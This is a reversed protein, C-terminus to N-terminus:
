RKGEDEFVLNVRGIRLMDGHQLATSGQVRRENVYTGNTSNLDELFFRGERWTIRAHRRSVLTDQIPIRVDGVAKRGLVSMERGLEFVSGEGTGSTVTIRAPLPLRTETTDGAGRQVDFIRGDAARLYLVPTGWEIDNGGAFVAKRSETLAADVPFGDALALYFEHSLTIAAQDSVPFQMAVVAPIGQQVLSQAAGAFPDSVSTRGGECANLVALSLTREDHLLTGLHAGSVKQGRGTEDELILVGDQTEREYGGHGIFHFVHYDVLRLQRLLGVLTPQALRELVVLGARALEALSTQLRSWETEVDLSPFDSPNAIMVLVRLPPRINLPRTGEPLELYRVIPSAISLGLFRNLVPNYLYEWPLDLLEPADTLRVRLRLGLGRETAMRLSNSLCDGVSNSFVARFLKEGLSKAALMEPSDVRRLLQSSRGIRLFFNELELSSFPFQFEIKGQGAPSNLVRAQYGTGSKELLLDFDLYSPVEQLPDRRPIPTGPIAPHLMGAIVEQGPQTDAEWVIQREVFSRWGASFPGAQHQDGALVAHRSLRKFLEPSMPGTEALVARMGAQEDPALQEWAYEYYRDAEVLFNERVQSLDPAASGMNFLHFCAIQIFFPHPGTLDLIFEVAEQGVWGGGARAFPDRILTEAESRLLFGLAREFFINWFQSTMLDQQQCLEYLSSRSSTVLALRYNSCLGRLYTFFSDEFAEGEALMEFEDLCLVLRLDMEQCRALFRRFGSRSGDRSLDVQLREGAARKLREAATFFFDEPGLGALEQLDMYAFIYADPEPLQVAYEEPRCLQYLLSSKGIRRPGVVSCSQMANLLTYIDRMELSRGVFTAPDKLVARNAYPNMTM